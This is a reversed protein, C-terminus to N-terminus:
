GLKVLVDFRDPTRQEGMALTGLFARSVDHSFAEAFECQQLRLLQQRNQALGKEAVRLLLLRRRAVNARRDDGGNFERDDILRLVDIRSQM